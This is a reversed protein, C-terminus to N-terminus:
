GLRMLRMLTAGAVKAEAAAPLGAERLSGLPADDGMDFPHDTGLVVHDEGVREVLFRLAMPSHVLSDCWIQRLYFSPPEPCAERLRPRAAWGHDLRGIQYPFFGGGHALVIRLGPHRALTGSLILRAAATATEAPFGVLNWLHYDALRSMDGSNQPHLFVPVELAAAAAFFPAFGPDDLDRGNVHSCIAVGRLGIEVARRLEGAARVTDQLPVTALPCFQGPFAQAWEAYGDNVIRALRLGAEAPAWYMFFEPPSSVAAGDLGMRGMAERILTSDYVRPRIALGPEVAAEVPARFQLRDGSEISVVDALDGRRVAEVFGPPVAHFHMDIAPM